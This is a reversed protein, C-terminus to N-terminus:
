EGGLLVDGFNLGTEWKLDVSLGLTVSSSRLDPVTLYAHKLSNVGITFNAMTMHDQIFVRPITNTTCGADYPPLAHYAPLVPGTMTSPNLEGILYFNSGNAILNDKGFFDVGTNNQFELAVYVKPQTNEPVAPVAVRMDQYNDFVLTYNPESPGSAPIVGNNTIQNDYVYGKRYNPDSDTTKPLFNWGVKPWQDGVIVGVLKFSTGDVNITKDAETVGYDRQQIAANNDKLATVGYEITTKLLSTGYNIDNKMAVSRTSSQVHGVSWDAPWSSTAETNWLSVSVPYDGVVHETGSVRLPSNGFYCLEAPYYYDDVTFTGGGVASSNYNEVYYFAKKTDDFKIHTSGQPLNFQSPYTGLDTASMSSINSFSSPKDGATAPWYSDSSLASIIDSADKFAVGTVSAGNTPLTQYTYYHSLHLSILHAMYKAIAEEKNTPTACRVANVITWLSQITAKLAPGSANRLEATQISTMEKYANGLKKELPTIAKSPTVPSTESNYASWKMNPADTAAIAFGYPPIGEAPADTAAVAAEGRNTSIICTLAAALLKQVEQFETKKAATLRRGLQFNVNALNDTITYDDLHGYINYSAPTTEENIARGYFLMTNTNLPLSMELVRRSKSNDLTGAAVIRSMDFSKDATAAASLPNGDSGQKFCMIYSHDIGRFDTASLSSSAQTAAGSQRTTASSGSSVNFVFQTTVENKNPDFNPNNEVKQEEAIADDSSSCATFGITGSLAIASMLAFNFYKKM